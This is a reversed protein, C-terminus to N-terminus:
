TGDIPRGLLCAFCTEVLKADACIEDALCILDLLADDRPDEPDFNHIIGLLVEYMLSMGTTVVEVDFHRRMLPVIEAARVGESPDIRLFTEIPVREVVTKVAGGALRNRRKHEPLSSLLRNMLALHADSYQMRSPGIYDDAFFLGGPALAAAAQEFLNELNEVHHLAHSACIFDYCRPSFTVANGNAVFFNISGIGRAKAKARAAEIAGEAVDFADLRECMGTEVLAIALDGGGCGIELGQRAPLRPMRGRVWTFPDLGELCRDYIRHRVRPHDPAFMWAASGPAQREEAFKSWLDSVVSISDSV